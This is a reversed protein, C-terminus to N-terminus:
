PLFISATTGAGDTSQLELRGGQGEILRRARAIRRAARTPVGGGARALASALEDPAMGPGNDTMVIRAGRRPGALAIHIHGEGAPVGAIAIDLLLALAEGLRSPDATVSGSTRSGRLDLTLGREEIPEERERVIATVFPLLEIREPRGPDEAEPEQWPEPWPEPELAAGADPGADDGADTEAPAGPFAPDPSAGDRRASSLESGTIDIATLLGNGDPLPIGSFVLTRGDALLVQDTRRKRDLTAARVVEGLAASDDPRALNQGIRELLLEIRPPPDFFDESLAWIDPFRRNWLQIRGDPAFVALAEFLADMMATRVRLLMDRTASLALQESRDEAVLVLGGDPMPQGVVKLHVGDPLSWDVRMPEDVTFWQGLERRWAPFDRMEPLRGSDRMLDLLRDFEITELEQGPPLAFIRRFPDNAFTLRREEDFQAVGLSLGDLLSRQAERFARLSRTQREQEEIDVAYGAIGVHGLPLDSVRLALRQHGLTAQVVREIAMGKELVRGAVQAATVGDVPEVLEIQREVVEEASEAGVALVYAHNVLRLQLDPGRFWMPMPAVEILGVLAAFDTSAREAEARLAVLEAQSESFDFWWVLAAANPAIAPDALQGRLALSRRGSEGGGVMMAFPAATKQTRRVAERLQELEDPALGAGEGAGGLESLFGPLRDFGLWAALREPGEIRGDARVLLPLAPSSDIMRTLRRIAGRASRSRRESARASLTIWAAGFTWAALLLGILVLAIPSLEM